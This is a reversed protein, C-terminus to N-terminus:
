GYAIAATTRESCLGMSRPPTGAPKMSSSGTISSSTPQPPSAPPCNDNGTIDDDHHYAFLSPTVGGALYLDECMTLNASDYGGHRLSVGSGGEYCPWGFNLVTQSPNPHLNLEEWLGSGVDGIYLESTGPQVAIRYPNRLGYAVIRRTNADPDAAAPNDPPAAGTLPDIRLITGDLSVPDGSTLLDQSRLAGGEATPPTQNGGVGTPPDGCPNAPTPSGSGGGAQGYDVFGFSAGDGGSVYLAGDSGFELDAISHSPFQQCWDEILVLEPGTMVNGDATLRSLRGSVVCGDTTPGPPTPCNDGWTPPTGGIPAYYTYLVYVYPQTPFNPHIALGLLGRDWFNHVDASLDAFVDPTPDSISDFV